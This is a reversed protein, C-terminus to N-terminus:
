RRSPPQLLGHERYPPATRNDVWEWPASTGPEADPPTEKCYHSTTAARGQVSTLHMTRGDPFLRIAMCVEYAYVVFRHEMNNEIKGATHINTNKNVNYTYFDTMMWMLNWRKKLREHTHTHTYLCTYVHGVEIFVKSLGLEVSM